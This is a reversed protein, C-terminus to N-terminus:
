SSDRRMSVISPIMELVFLTLLAHKSATATM